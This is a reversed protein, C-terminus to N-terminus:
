GAADAGGAVILPPAADSVRAAEGAGPHAANLPEHWLEAPTVQRLADRVLESRTVGLERARATLYQLQPESVRLMLVPSEGRAAQQQTSVTRELTVRSDYPDGYLM